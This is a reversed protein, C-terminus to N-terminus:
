NGDSFIVGPMRIALQRTSVEEFFKMEKSGFLLLILDFIGRNKV